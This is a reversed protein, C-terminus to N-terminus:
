ERSLICWGETFGLNGYFMTYFFFGQGELDKEELVEKPPFFVFYVSCLEAPVHGPGM